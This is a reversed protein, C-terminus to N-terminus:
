FEFFPVWFERLYMRWRAVVDRIKKHVHCRSNREFKWEREWQRLTRSFSFSDNGWEWEKLIHLPIVLAAALFFVM